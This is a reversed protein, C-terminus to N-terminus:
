AHELIDVSTEYTVDDIKEEDKLINIALLVSAHAEKQVISLFEDEDFGSELCIVIVNILSEVIIGFVFNYYEHPIDTKLLNIGELISWQATFRIVNKIKQPLLANSKLHKNIEEFVINSLLREDKDKLKGPINKIENKISEKLFLILNSNM